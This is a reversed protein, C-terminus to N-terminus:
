LIHLTSNRFSIDISIHAYFHGNSTHFTSNGFIAFCGNANGWLADMAMEGCFTWQWKGVFHGNANGWLIDMPMERCFTWQSEGCINMAMEGCCYQDMSIKLLMFHAKDNGGLICM